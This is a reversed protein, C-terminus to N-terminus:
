DNAYSACVQASTHGSSAATCMYTKTAILRPFFVSKASTLHMELRAINRNPIGNALPFYPPEAPAAPHTARFEHIAFRSFNAILVPVCTSKALTLNMELRPIERNSVRPSVRCLRSPLWFLDKSEREGNLYAKGDLM